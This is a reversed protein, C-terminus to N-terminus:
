GTKFKEAKRFSFGEVMESTEGLKKKREIWIKLDRETITDFCM